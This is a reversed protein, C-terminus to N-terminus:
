PGFSHELDTAARFGDPKWDPFARLLVRELRRLYQRRSADRATPTRRDSSPVIELAVPKPAGMRRTILRLCGTRHQVSVVSRVLNRDQSWLQFVCRGHSEVVSYRASRMDFLIQGDELIAASPHEAIYAEIMEALASPLLSDEAGVASTSPM